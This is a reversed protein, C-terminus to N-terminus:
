NRIAAVGASLLETMPGGLLVMLDLASRDPIAVYTAGLRGAERLAVERGHLSECRWYILAMHGAEHRAVSLPTNLEVDM